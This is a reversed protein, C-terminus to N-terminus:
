GRPTLTVGFQDGRRSIIYDRGDFTTLVKDYGGEDQFEGLVTEPSVVQTMGRHYSGSWSEHQQTHCNLCAKSGVYDDALVQVPRDPPLDEILVPRGCYLYVALLCALPALTWLGVIMTSWSHHERSLRQLWLSM